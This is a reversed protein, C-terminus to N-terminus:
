IGFRLTTLDMIGIADNGVVFVRQGIGLMPGEEPGIWDTARGLLFDDSIDPKNTDYIAPLYVDGDPGGTVSVSARRWALDRARRPPYFEIAAVRETPIWFYKGTTTLVELFGAHLDDADRFDDFPADAALGAVPLRLEEAEAARRAAEQTDGARLAVRAALISRLAPTPESLFEPLRGERSHQRRALAARVLQRFEAIGVMVTSDIQAAADLITDARELNGAFVLLEALLFRNSLDAPNRRLAANAAEIAPTLRGARFLAGATNETESM